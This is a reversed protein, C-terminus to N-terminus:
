SGLAPVEERESLKFQIREFPAPSIGWAGGFPNDIDDIIEIVVLSMLATFGVIVSGIFQSEFGLLLMGILLSATALYLLVRLLRPIRINVLAIRDGRAESVAGLTRVSESWAPVDKTTEVGIENVADTMALFEDEAATAAQRQAMAAWEKSLVEGRYREISTRARDVSARDSLYGVYRWLEALSRAERKVARDTDTFKSWVSVVTFGTLVSYLTGIAGVFTGVGGIDARLDTTEELILHLAVAAPLLVALRVWFAPRLASAL